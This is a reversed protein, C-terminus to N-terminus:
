GENGDGGHDSHLNKHQCGDLPLGCGVLFVLRLDANVEVLDLVLGQVHHRGDLHEAVLLVVCVVIRSTLSVVGVVEEVDNEKPNQFLEGVAVRLREPSFTRSMSTRRQVKSVGVVCGEMRSEESTAAEGEDEVPANDSVSM